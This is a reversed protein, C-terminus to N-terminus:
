REGREDKEMRNTIITAILACPGFVIAGVYLEFVVFKTVSWISGWFDGIPNM